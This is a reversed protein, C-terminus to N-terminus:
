WMFVVHLILLLMFAIFMAAIPGFIILTQLKFNCKAYINPALEECASLLGGAAPMWLLAAFWLKAVIMLVDM